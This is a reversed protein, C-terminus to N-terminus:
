LLEESQPFHPRLLSTLSEVFKEENERFLVTSDKSNASYSKLVAAQKFINIYM